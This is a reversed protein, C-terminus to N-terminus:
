TKANLLRKRASSKDEAIQIQFSLGRMASSIHRLLANIFVVVGLMELAEEISVIASYMMDRKSHSAAYFGGILEVGLAGSIFVIGAFFFLMRTRVPLAMLFRWFFLLCGLVFGAGPIVWAYHLLGSANLASRVPETMREHFQIMEDVALALFLVALATWQRVFRDGRILKVYATLGLLISCVILSLMSYFAPINVESDLDFSQALLDRLPYDPLYFVTFQTVLYAAIITLIIGSLLRTIQKSVLTIELQHKAEKFEYQNSTVQQHEYPQWRSCNNRKRSVVNEIFDELLQKEIWGYQILIDGLRKNERQQADLAQQLEVSTILGAEVLYTGLPKYKYLKETKIM